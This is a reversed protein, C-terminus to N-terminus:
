PLISITVTDSYAGATKATYDAGLVTGAITLTRPATPGANPLADKTLTLSYPILDLGPPPGQMANKGATLHLGPGATVADTTVGKTCWFTTTTSGSVDTGVSPDLPGFDLTSTKPATFKCTGAVSARVTLSNTDAAWAAGATVFVAVAIWFVLGKRMRAEKYNGDPVVRSRRM